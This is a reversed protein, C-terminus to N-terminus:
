VCNFSHGQRSWHDAQCEYGCYLSKRCAACIYKAKNPCCVCSSPDFIEDMINALNSDHLDKVKALRKKLNERMIKLVLISIHILSLNFLQHFLLTRDEPTLSDRESDEQQSVATLSVVCNQGFISKHFKSLVVM